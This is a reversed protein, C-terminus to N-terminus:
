TNQGYKKKKRGTAAPRPIQACFISLFLLRKTLKEHDRGFQGDLEGFILDKLRKPSKKHARDRGAAAASTIAFNIFYIHPMFSSRNSSMWLHTEYILCCSVSNSLHFPHTISGFNWDCLSVRLFCCMLNEASLAIRKSTMRLNPVHINTMKRFFELVFLKTTKCPTWDNAAFCPWVCFKNEHSTNKWLFTVSWPCSDLGCGCQQM